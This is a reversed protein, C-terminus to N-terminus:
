FLASLGSFLLALLLIFITIKPTFIVESVTEFDSDRIRHFAKQLNDGKFWVKAFEDRDEMSILRFLIELIGVQLEYDLVVSYNLM